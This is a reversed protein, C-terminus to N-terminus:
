AAKLPYELCRSRVQQKHNKCKPQYMTETQRGAQLRKLKTGVLKQSLYQAKIDAYLHPLDKCEDGDYKHQFFYLLRLM